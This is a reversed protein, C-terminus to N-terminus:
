DNKNDMSISPTLIFPEDHRSGSLLHATAPNRTKSPNRSTSSQLQAIVLRRRSVSVSDHSSAATLVQRQFASHTDCLLRYNKEVISRVLEGPYLCAAKLKLQLIIWNSRVASDLRTHRGL